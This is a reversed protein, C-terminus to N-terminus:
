SRNFEEVAQEVAPELFPSPDIGRKKISKAIAWAIGRAEKSNTIGLKRKVWTILSDVPPMSGPMRGYEINEAYIAPYVITKKLFQRNVNATKLLFSTDVKDDEILREQSLQFIRDVFDDMQRNVEDLIDKEESGM